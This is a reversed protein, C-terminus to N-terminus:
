VRGVWVWKYHTFTPKGGEVSRTINWASFCPYWGEWDDCDVAKLAALQVMMTLHAQVPAAFVGFVACNNSQLFSIVRNVQEETELSVSAMETAEPTVTIQFGMVAADDM